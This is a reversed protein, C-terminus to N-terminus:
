ALDYKELLLKKIKMQSRKSINERLISGSIGELCEVLFEAEIKPNAYGLKKFATAMANKLPLMKNAKYTELEWKMKFILRWFSFDSKPISFPKEIAITIAKKPDKETVANIFLLGAKAEAQSIIEDLLGKKSKFHRFILADSVGAKRAIMATSTANFGHNAFLETAVDIIRQKKETM